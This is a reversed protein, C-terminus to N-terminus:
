KDNYIISTNSQELGMFRSSEYQCNDFLLSRHYRVRTKDNPIATLIRKFVVKRFAELNIADIIFGEQNQISIPLIRDDKAFDEDSVFAIPLFYHQYFAEVFNVELILGYYVEEYQQIRFYEALEIYKLKSAKGGYWRQKIIYNELVDSLFVKVFAENELLEEWRNDFNYPPQLATPKTEKKAM